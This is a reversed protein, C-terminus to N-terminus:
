IKRIIGLPTQEHDQGLPNDKLIRVVLEKNISAHSVGLIAGSLDNIDVVAVKVGDLAESIELAVQDPKDPGLVVYENYPPLTNPTPGDISSAKYGAIDYFVGRKGFIKTVASAASAFLIRPIGCERLAMEMTEPMGLGIGAPTKTVYKALLTALPRPTIDKIPIARGQTIGVIKETVFLIDNPMLESHAYKKIVEILQDDRMVVHTKIPIRLYKTGEITVEPHKVRRANQESM